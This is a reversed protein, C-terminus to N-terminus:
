ECDPEEEGEKKDKDDKKEDDATISCSSLDFSEVAANAPAFYALALLLAFLRFILNM